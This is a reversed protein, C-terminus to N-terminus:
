ATGATEQERLMEREIAHSEDAVAQAFADRWDELSPSGWTLDFIRTVRDRRAADMADFLIKANEFTM